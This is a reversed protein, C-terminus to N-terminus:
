ATLSCGLVVVVVVADVFVADVFVVVDVVVDVVVVAKFIDEAASLM